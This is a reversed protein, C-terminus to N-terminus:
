ESQRAFGVRLPRPDTRSPESSIRTALTYGPIRDHFAFWGRLVLLLAAVLFIGLLIRGFKRWRSKPRISNSNMIVHKVEGGSNDLASVCTAM